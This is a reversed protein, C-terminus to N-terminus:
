VSGEAMIKLQNFKSPSRCSNETDPESKLRGSSAAFEVQLVKDTLYLYREDLALTSGDNLAEGRLLNITWFRDHYQQSMVKVRGTNWDMGAFSALGACM